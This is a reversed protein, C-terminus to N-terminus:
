WTFTKHLLNANGKVDIVYLELEHEGGKAIRTEDFTYLLQNNKPDYEFLAWKNDIYGEYKAIGSLNDIITFRLAKSSTLDAGSSNKAPIIEPAITDLAIAFEGFNRLQAVVAGKKYDGGAAVIEKEDNFSVILLKNRLTPAIDPCKISLSYPLHVPVEKGAIHYVPSLLGDAPSAINFTFDMDQYLANAPIEVRVPGEEFSNVQNYKMKIFDINELGPNVEAVREENGKLTFKLESSNGAVDSAVIRILYDRSENLKLPQNDVSKNYISLRDNPLRYLRHAKIGSTVREEYDIHANVYRTESFSFEDMMHSYTLKNDVYMELTCIGCRNSSGNLYDFVEISIGLTGSGSMKTGYPVTYIGNEKVLQSSLKKSKGNVQSRNDLPYLHLSQFKPPIQDKIDFGYSLVNTPHQSATSRIEFHLHPGSSSGSNGSYAILEGRKLLFTEQNLYLDVEHSQKKYQINTVYAAIDDRYRDLHGYVSTYGNPHTIYISKGYGNAQVKIRSIYGDDISYVPHGTTGQTKIDIGSHFHDSRIEGFNGSLYIPIKVPPYFSGGDQGISYSVIFQLLILVITRCKM